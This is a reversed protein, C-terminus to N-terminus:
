KIIEQLHNINIAFIDDKIKYKVPSNCVLYGAKVSKRGYIEEFYKMNRADELTPNETTKCEFLMFGGNKEIVIDVERNSTDRFFWMPITKGEENMIRKIESVILNEFLHGAYPEDAVSGIREIGLLFRALGTDSFYLKPAKVLRKGINRYYPELLFIQGSTVAISLWNKITNPAVGTDRAMDSYSLIKACRSAACRLFRDFETLSGVSSLNRVDRELYTALYSNFWIHADTERAHLEPFGGKFLYERVTKEPFAAKVERFSLGMMEIVACRGALSEAVNHMLKFNQSGTLLFKGPERDMDVLHKIYRFISPAYQVEDIILPPPNNMFFEEPSKEAQFAVAPIDLAVYHIDPFLKRLLSTKGVQRAGTLILVPFQRIIRKILSSYKREVWM